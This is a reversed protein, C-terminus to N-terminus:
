KPGKEGLEKLKAKVLEDIEDNSSSKKVLSGDDLLVAVVKGNRDMIDLM